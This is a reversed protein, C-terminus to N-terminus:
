GKSAGRSFLARTDLTPKTFGNTKVDNPNCNPRCPVFSYYKTDPSYVVGDVFDYPINPQLPDISALRYQDKTPVLHCPVLKEVVIVTDFAFLDDEIFTGFILIDGKQYKVNGRRCCIHRFCGFVYPDTNLAKPPMPPLLRVARLDTHIAKPKKKSIITAKSYPEYEGWFCLTSAIPSGNYLYVGDRQIFKRWHSKKTNWSLYNVDSIKRKHYGPETDPHNILFLRTMTNFQKRKDGTQYKAPSM